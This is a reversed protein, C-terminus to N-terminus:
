RYFLITIGAKREEYHRQPEILYHMPFLNQLTLAKSMYRTLMILVQSIMTVM